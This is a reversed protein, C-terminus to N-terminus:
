HTCYNDIFNAAIENEWSKVAIVPPPNPYYHSLAGEFEFVYVHDGLLDLSELRYFPVLRPTLKPDVNAVRQRNGPVNNLSTNPASELYFETGIRHKANYKQLTTHVVVKSPVTNDFPYTRFLQKAWSTVAYHACLDPVPACTEMPTIFKCFALLRAPCSHSAYTAKVSGDATDLQNNSRLFLKQKKAQQVTAPAKMVYDFWCWDYWANGRFLPSARYRREEEGDKRKCETHL